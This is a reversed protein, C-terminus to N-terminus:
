TALERAVQEPPPSAGIRVTLDFREEVPDVFRDELMLDIQLEPYQQLARLMLPHLKPEGLALPASACWGARSAPASM